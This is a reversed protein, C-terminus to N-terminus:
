HGIELAQRMQSDSRESSGVGNEVPGFCLTWLAYNGNPRPEEFKSRYLGSQMFLRYMQQLDHRCYFALKCALAFDDQSPTRSRRGGNWYFRAVPDRRTMGLVVGDSLTQGNGTDTTDPADGSESFVTEAGLIVSRPSAEALATLGFDPLVAIGQEDPRCEEEFDYYGGEIHRSGPAVCYAANARVDLGPLVKVRSRLEAHSPLRFYLHRSGNGRGSAVQVTYPLREGADIQLYDLTTLGNEDPRVDADLAITRIGTIVGFNAHPYRRFWARIKKPDSTAKQSYGRFRPHKGPKCNRLGGCECTLVGPATEVVGWLPFIPGLTASLLIREEREHKTM